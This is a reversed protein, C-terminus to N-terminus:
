SVQERLVRRLIKGSASKPIADVIEIRHIQKYTALNATCLAQVDALSPADGAPVIFAMPIEGAEDDALGIVAADSIEPMTLLLAELEAPAVQFGKYKILEKVRDTIFLHGDRDIRAIDGTRLWGDPTITNATAEQNNLYGKMVQPGRVWLEGEEGEPVDEMTEPNVLRCETSAVTLGCAGNRADSPKTVHSAPSLETMGYAQTVACNLRAGVADAVDGGLPAAASNVQRVYTLDFQDIMPHKALAIAVPPAIWLRPTRHTQAHTLFQELDFRPMTVLAGGESLYLNLLVELGYIHFFPLFAVTTEGEVPEFSAMIQDVNIVLNRHTLMVGKPLGTTGSSYPLAAIDNTVDVPAQEALPTGLYETIPTAGDAEGFVLIERVGTGKSGEIATELFMPITVLIDAGSDNLQHQLEPATYTPNVTTITNGAWATGYVVAPYEPINPAMIAIVNGPALGRETLGGAFAKSMGVLGAATIQRGSPGDTLVVKDPNRELRSFVRQAITEETASVEPATSRYITM